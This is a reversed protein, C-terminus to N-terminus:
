SSAKFHKTFSLMNVYHKIKVFQFLLDLIKALKSKEIYFLIFVSFHVFFYSNNREEKREKNREEKIERRKIELNVILM